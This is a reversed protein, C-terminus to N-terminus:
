FPTTVTDEWTVDTDHKAVAERVDVRSAVESRLREGRVSALAFCGWAIAATLLHWLIDSSTLLGHIFKHVHTLCPGHWAMGLSDFLARSTNATNKAANAKAAFVANTAIMMNSQSLHHAQHTESDRAPASWLRSSGQLHAMRPRQYLHQMPKQDHYQM